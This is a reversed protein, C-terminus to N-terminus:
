SDQGLEPLKLPAVTELHAQYEALDGQNVLRISDRIFEAFREFGERGRQCLLQPDPYLDPRAQIDLYRVAVGDLSTLHGSLQSATSYLSNPATDRVRNVLEPVYRCALELSRRADRDTIRGIRDEVTELQRLVRKVKRNAEDEYNDEVVQNLNRDDVMLYVGIAAAGALLPSLVLSGTPVFVALFVGVAALLGLPGALRHRM